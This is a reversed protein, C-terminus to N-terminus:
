AAENRSEARNGMSCAKDDNYAGVLNPPRRPDVLPLFHRYASTLSCDILTKITITNMDTRRPEAQLPRRKQTLSTTMLDAMIERLGNLVVFLSSSSLTHQTAPVPDNRQRVVAPAAKTTKHRRNVRFLDRGSVTRRSLM